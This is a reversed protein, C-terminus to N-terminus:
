LANALVVQSIRFQQEAFDNPQVIEGGDRTALGRYVEPDVAQSLTRVGGDGFLFHAGAVHHSGFDEFHALPDNPARGARGVVRSIPRRSEPVAGVWTVSGLRSSREGVIITNSSGDRLDELRTRSNHYFTGDGNSPDDDIAAAGFVGSYNARAVSFLPIDDDADPPSDDSSYQKISLQIGSEAQTLLFQRPSPDSPCLFTGVATERLVQVSPASIPTALLAPPVGPAASLVWPPLKGAWRPPGGIPAAEDVPALTPLSVAGGDLHPLLALAWSWGPHGHPSKAVWGASFHGYSTHHSHLAIGIQRLNNRCSSKRAAERAMQVAPLTVALLLTVVGIVVLLEILTLGTRRGPM